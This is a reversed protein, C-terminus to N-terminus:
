ACQSAQPNKVEHGVRRAITVAVRVPSSLRDGQRRSRSDAGPWTRKRRVEAV